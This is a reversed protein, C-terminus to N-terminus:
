KLSQAPQLALTFVAQGTQTRQRLEIRDLFQLAALLEDLHGMVEDRPAKKGTALAGALPGRRQRLYARFDKVSIRLLPVDAEPAPAGDSPRFRRLAEPSSALVLYGGRLSLAPLLGAPFVEDGSLYKVEQKDQKLSGLSLPRDPHQSNHSLVLLVAASSVASLVAKDLPSEPDGVGLRLAAFAQPVWAKEDPPPAAVCVGFDPGVAPLVDKVFDRGLAAGLVRNLDAALSQRGGGPLFEGVADFLEPAPIHVALALLANDPFFRWLDSPRAAEELFRRVAPPMAQPRGRVSLSVRVDRDLSLSLVLSDLAKWCAAFTKAGPPPRGNEGSRPAEVEADLARPNVCLAVFAEDAGAERIRRALTPEADSASIRQAALARRLMDEEGSFVLVAGRLCYYGVEKKDVRRWYHEGHWECDALEKLDGSEKQVRNLHGVLGELARATRARILLLGQDEDKRGGAGTRCAFVVADGLIDERLGTWGMGLVKRLRAEITRIREWEHSDRLARATPSARFVQVFPSQELRAAHGRLDQVVVCFAVDDPVYRLLDDRPSAAVAPAALACALALALPTNRTQAAAIMIGDEDAAEPAV